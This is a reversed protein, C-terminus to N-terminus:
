GISRERGRKGPAQSRRVSSRPLRPRRLPTKARVSAQVVVPFSWATQNGSADTATCTVITTGRPFFSGSPPTCVVSPAPDIDDSASVSFFVTEGPTSGKPDTVSVVPAGSIAPPTADRGLFLMWVAGQDRGGDDDKYAGVALDLGRRRPSELVAVSHGFYDQFDLRGGFGGATASIKQESSVTGDRNLFLIWVAGRETGGDDDGSAGVALDGIGDGDVDGLAALSGGFFDYSDLDGGFGGTAERIKREFSVTGDRNLFLIWVAGQFDTGYGDYYAGVALDRVGNGDVDDLAALSIGFREKPDLDGEFGGATASIKQESAVTGDSNLFLIWVAGQESQSVGGGDDDGAAGVALDGIGDGDLDGLAALSNGFFDYLDLVGGFGGATASIKQESAVTGDPNLFLIWVAGRNVGNGDVAGVALDGIGDGDLDGLGALSMGFTDNEPLVGEFGGQTASIKQESVVTGNANLFLIWVAGQDIGGDNDNPAAVALEDIGDGDLDGVSTVSRGFQDAGDDSDSGGGVDLVGGFRGATESIKQEAQVIEGQATALSGLCALVWWPRVGRSLVGISRIM